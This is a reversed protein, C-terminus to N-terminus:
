TDGVSIEPIIGLVTAPVPDDLQLSIQGGTDYMPDLVVRQDGTILPLPGGLNITSNWEKVPVVTAFTRGAKLGRTSRVRVTVANVKKRKGQITPEGADLYLTQLQCQFPLGILVQSASQQLTIQGGKVIQQAQVNGDALIGVTMGNLYALGTVTTVPQTLTWTGITAPIPTNLPDNPITPFPVDITALVVLGSLFATVTAKGSNARIVAGVNGLAFQAVDITFTVTSGVVNAGPGPYLNSAPAPQTLAVACDLCWANEINPPENLPANGELAQRDALREITYVWNGGLLRKVV